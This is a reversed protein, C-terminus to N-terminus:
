LVDGRLPQHDRGVAAHFIHRAVDGKTLHLRHDVSCFQHALFQSFGLDRPFLVPPHLARRSPLFDSRSNDSLAPVINRVRPQPLDHCRQDLVQVCPDAVDLRGLRFPKRAISKRVRVPFSQVSLRWSNM